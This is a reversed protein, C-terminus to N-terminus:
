IPEAEFLPLAESVTASLISIETFLQLFREKQQNSLVKVYDTNSFYNKAM